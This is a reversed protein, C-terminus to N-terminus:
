CCTSPNTKRQRSRDERHAFVDRSDGGQPFVVAARKAALDDQNALRIASRNAGQPAQVSKSIFPSRPGPRKSPRKCKWSGAMRSRSTRWCNRTRSCPRRTGCEAGTIETRREAAGAEAGGSCFSGRESGPRGGRGAANRDAVGAPRRRSDGSADLHGAEAYAQLPVEDPQALGHKKVLM